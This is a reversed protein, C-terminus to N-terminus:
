GGAHKPSSGMLTVTLGLLQVYPALHDEIGVMWFHRPYRSDINVVGLTRHESYMPISLISSYPADPRFKGRLNPALTDPIYATKLDRVADGAGPADLGLRIRRRGVSYRSFRILALEHTEGRQELIMLNASFCDKRTEFLLDETKDVVITLLQTQIASVEELNRAKLIIEQLEQLSGATGLALLRRRDLADTGRSGMLRAGARAAYLLLLVLFPWRYPFSQVVRTAIQHSIPDELEVTTTASYTFFLPLALLVFNLFLVPLERLWEGIPAKLWQRARNRIPSFTRGTPNNSSGSM